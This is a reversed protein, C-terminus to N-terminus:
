ISEIKKCFDLLRNEVTQPIINNTIWTHVDGGYNMELYEATKEFPMFFGEYEEENSSCCLAFVKKGALGRGIEKQVRVLDSFRDIYTKMVASMSYWYVPTCFVINDYDLMQKALDLFDDNTNNYSYDYYGFHYKTLDMLDSSLHHHLFDTIMKTNGDGRSSGFILLTNKKM